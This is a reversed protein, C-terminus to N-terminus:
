HLCFTSKTIIDNGYCISNEKLFRAQANADMSAKKDERKETTWHWHFNFFNKFFRKKINRDIEAISRHNEYPEM